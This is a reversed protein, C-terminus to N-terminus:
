AAPAYDNILGGLLPRRRIRGYVPGPVPAEPRPPRLQLARHPRRANYHAAYLALARRLHREGFILMRATLETRVTLANTHTGLVTSNGKILASSSEHQATQQDLGPPPGPPSFKTSRQACRM